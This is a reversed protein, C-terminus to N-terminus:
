QAASPFTPSGLETGCLHAGLWVPLKSLNPYVPNCWLRSGWPDLEVACSGAERSGWPKFRGLGDPM